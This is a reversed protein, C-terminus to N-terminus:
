TQTEIKLFQRNDDFHFSGTFNNYFITIGTYQAGNFTNLFSYATIRNTQQITLTLNNITLTTNKESGVGKLIALMEQVQADGKWNQYRELFDLTANFLDGSPNTYPLGASGSSLDCSWVDGNYFDFDANISYQGDPYTHDVTDIQLGLYNESTADQNETVTYNSLNLQVIDTLFAVAKDKQSSSTRQAQTAQMFFAVLVLLILLILATRLPKKM